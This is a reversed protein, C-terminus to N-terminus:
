ELRVLVAAVQSLFSCAFGACIVVPWDGWFLIAGVLWGCWVGCCQYCTIIKRIASGVTKPQEESYNKKLWERIPLFLSSDVIIHTLGVSAICFLLMNM